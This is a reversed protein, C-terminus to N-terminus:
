YRQLPEYAMAALYRFLRVRGIAGIKSTTVMDSAIASAALYSRYIGGRLTAHYAERFSGRELALEKRQIDFDKSQSSQVSFFATPTRPITNNMFNVVSGHNRSLNGRDWVYLDNYPASWIEGVSNGM